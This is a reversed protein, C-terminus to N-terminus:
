YWLIRGALTLYINLGGFTVCIDLGGFTVCIDLGGFTLYIDLGGFTVCINLGGFTVCINLPMTTMSSLKFISCCFESWTALLTMIIIIILTKSIQKSCNTLPIFILQQASIDRLSPISYYAGHFDQCQWFPPPPRGMGLNKPPNTSTDGFVRSM